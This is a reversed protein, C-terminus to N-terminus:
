ALDPPGEPWPDEDYLEGVEDPVNAWPDDLDMCKGDHEVFEDLCVELGRCPLPLARQMELGATPLPLLGYPLETPCVELGRNPLPLARQMETGSMPLPLLQVPFESAGIHGRAQWVEVSPLSAYPGDLPVDRVPHLGKLFRGLRYRSGKSPKGLSGNTTCTRALGIANAESYCGCRICCVIGARGEQVFAAWPTHGCLRAGAMCTAVASVSSCCPQVSM